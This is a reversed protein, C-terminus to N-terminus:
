LVHWKWLFSNIYFFFKNFYLIIFYLILFFIIVMLKKDDITFKGGFLVLDGENFAENYEHRSNIFQKFTFVHNQSSIKERYIADGYVLKDSTRIRVILGIVTLTSTM